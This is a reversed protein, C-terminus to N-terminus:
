KVVPAFTDFFNVGKIQIDGRVCFRAKLKRVLGDPVRRIKFAWTSAIVNMQPKRKVMDWSKLNQVTSIEKASGEWFGESNPGNVAKGFGPNDEAPARSVLGFTPFNDLVLDLPDQLVDMDAFFWSSEGNIDM